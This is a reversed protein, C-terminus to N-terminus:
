RRDARDTLTKAASLMARRLERVEDELDLVNNALVGKDRKMAAEFREARERAM